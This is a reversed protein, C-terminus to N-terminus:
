LRVWDIWIAGHTRAFVMGEENKEDWALRGFARLALYEAYARVRSMGVQRCIDLYILDATKRSTLQALYAWDHALAAAVRPVEFPHGTLRWLFRPTSCGDFTFGDLVVVKYCRGDPLAGAVSWGGDVCHSSGSVGHYHPMRVDGFYVDSLSGGGRYTKKISKLIKV